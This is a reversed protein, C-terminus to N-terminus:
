GYYTGPMETECLVGSRTHPCNCWWNGGYDSCNGGNNTCQSLIESSSPSVCSGTMDPVVCSLLIFYKAHKYFMRVRFIPFNECYKRIHSM